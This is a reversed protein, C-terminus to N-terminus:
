NNSEVKNTLEFGLSIALVRLVLPGNDVIVFPRSKSPYMVPKEVFLFKLMSLHYSDLLYNVMRNGNAEGMGVQLEDKEDPAFLISKSDLTFPPLCEPNTFNLPGLGM